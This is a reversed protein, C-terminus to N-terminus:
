PKSAQGGMVFCLIAILLSIVSDEKQGSYMEFTALAANLTGLIFLTVPLLRSDLNKM